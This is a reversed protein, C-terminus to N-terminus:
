RTLFFLAIGSYADQTAHAMMGPRLSKRMHALLGFFIGYIAIAAMMRAGQYGHALGFTAGSAIIGLATSRSLMSFQRQLYGRFIIEEFLGASSSLLVWLGAEIYSHPIIPGLMRKTDEKLKAINHLDITGLAIRVGILVSDAIVLFGIAIAVDLLFDEVTNWRGGILDRMRVGRSRIGFWIILILVLQTIFTGAYLLLRSAPGSVAAVKASGIFSNGLILLIILATHWVPAILNSATPASQGTPEGLGPSSNEPIPQFENSMTQFVKPGSSM